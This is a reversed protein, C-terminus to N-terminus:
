GAGGHARRIAAVINTYAGCRCLNGCMRERIDADDRPPAESLLGVASVIQGPTCYGCQFADEELFAQQMPHLEDGHALGEITTIEKDEVTMALALCALVRQGGVLVTCAGCQGHDCGKKTGSLDLRERLTDLLTARPDLALSHEVGNVRLKVLRQNPPGVMGEVSASALEAVSTRGTDCAEAFVAGLGIALSAITWERRSMVGGALSARDRSGPPRRKAAAAAIGLGRVLNSAARAPDADTDRHEFRVDGAGDLLVITVAGPRPHLGDPPLDAFPEGGESPVRFAAEESVVLLDAGLARLEARVRRREDTFSTPSWGPVFAVVLPTAPAPPPPRTSAIERRMARGTQVEPVLAAGRSRV